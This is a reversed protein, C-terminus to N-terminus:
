GPNTFRNFGSQVMRYQRSKNLPQSPLRLARKPTAGLSPNPNAEYQRTILPMSGDFSLLGHKFNYWGLGCNASYFLFKQASNGLPNPASYM